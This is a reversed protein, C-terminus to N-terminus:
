VYETSLYVDLAVVKRGRKVDKAYIYRFDPCLERKANIAERDKKAVIDSESFRGVYIMYDTNMVEKIQNAPPPAEKTMCIEDATYSQKVGCM